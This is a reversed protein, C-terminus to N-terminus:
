KPEKKGRLLAEPHRSLYDTLSRISRAAETLQRIAAPLDADQAGGGGGLTRNAAAAAGQAETATQQLSQLLPGIKPSAQKLTSDLTGLAGDLHTLSDRLEPSGTLTRLNATVGRLNAGIAAIPLQDVKTLIGNVKAFMDDDGAAPLWPWPSGPRLRGAGGAKPDLTVTYAGIFPPSQTLKARLGRAVMRAVIADVADRTPAVHLRTGDIAITVPTRILGTEPEFIAQTAVVRGVTYGRLMVPAGAFLGGVDGGLAVQYLTEPGIPAAAASGADPYLQFRAHPPAPSKDAADAPTEFSVGGLAAISPSTLRAQLGGATRTIQFANADWFHSSRTVLQVYPERVFADVKFGTLGVPRIGAITGVPVGHTYISTGPTISVLDPATLVFHRGPTGAVIVPADRVAVFHREPEGPGPAVGISPGAVAARLSAINTFSPNAGVVWLRTGTRFLSKQASDIRLTLAINRHDDALRIDSVSGIELGNYDVHTDGTRVGTASPVILEISVGRNTLARLGLWAAIMLAAIPIAWVLGPWRGRHVEAETRPGADATDTM